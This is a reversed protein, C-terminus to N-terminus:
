RKNIREIRILIHLMFGIQIQAFSICEIMGSLIMVSLRGYFGTDPIM